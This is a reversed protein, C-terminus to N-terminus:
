WWWQVLWTNDLCLSMYIFTIELTPFKINMWKLINNLRTRTLVLAQNIFYSTLLITQIYHGHKRPLSTFIGNSNLSGVHLARCLSFIDDACAITNFFCKSVDLILKIYGFLLINNIMMCITNSNLKISINICNYM